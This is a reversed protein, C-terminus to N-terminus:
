WVQPWYHPCTFKPHVAHVPLVPSPLYIKLHVQRRPLNMNIIKDYETVLDFLGQELSVPWNPGFRRKNNNKACEISFLIEAASEAVGVFKGLKRCIRHCQYLFPIGHNRLPSIAIYPSNTLTWSSSGTSHSSRWRLFDMLRIQLHLRRLYVSRCDFWM